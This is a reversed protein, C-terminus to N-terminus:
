ERLRLLTEHIQYLIKLFYIVISGQKFKFFFLFFFILFPFKIIKKGYFVIGYVFVFLFNFGLGEGM